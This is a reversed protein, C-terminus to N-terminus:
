ATARAVLIAKIEKSLLRFRWYEDPTLNGHTELSDCLVAVLEEHTAPGRAGWTQGAVSFHTRKLAEVFTDADLRSVTTAQELAQVRDRLGM